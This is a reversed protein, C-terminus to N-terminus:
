QEVLRISLPHIAFSMIPRDRGHDVVRDPTYPSDALLYYRLVM